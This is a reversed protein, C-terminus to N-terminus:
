FQEWYIDEKQIGLIELKARADKVMAPSGCIYYEEYNEINERTIWDTVYGTRSEHNTVRSEFDNEKSFYQVYEFDRFRKGIHSIDEEYFSDVFNRV